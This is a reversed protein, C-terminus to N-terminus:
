LGEMGQNSHNYKPWDFDILHLIHFTTFYVCNGQGETGTDPHVSPARNAMRAGYATIQTYRLALFFSPKPSITPIMVM